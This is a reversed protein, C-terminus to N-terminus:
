WVDEPEISEGPARPAEMSAIALAGPEVLLEERALCRDEYSPLPAYIHEVQTAQACHQLWHAIVGLPRGKCSGGSRTFVCKGHAPNGCTAQWRRGKPYFDVRGGFVELRMKALPEPPDAVPAAPASAPGPETSSAAGSAAPGDVVICPPGSSSSAAEGVKSESEDGGGLVLGMALESEESLLLLAAEEEEEERAAEEDGLLAEDHAADLADVEGGDDGDALAAAGGAAPPSDHEGDEEAIGLDLPLVKPAAKVGSARMRPKKRPDWFCEWDWACELLVDSPDFFGVARENEVFRLGRMSWKLEKDLSDVARHIPLFTCTAKALIGGGAAASVEYSDCSLVHVHPLYPSLCVWSIHWLVDEVAMEGGAVAAAEAGAPDVVALPEGRLHLAIKGEVLQSRGITKYLTHSKLCKYLRAVTALTLRGSASCVCMHLSRCLAARGEAAKEAKSQEPLDPVSASSITGTKCDWDAQLAKMINCTRANSHAFAVIKEAAEDSSPVFEALAMVSDPVM